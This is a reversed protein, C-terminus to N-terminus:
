AEYWCAKMTYSSAASQSANVLHVLLQEGPALEVQPIRLRTVIPATNAIDFLTAGTATTSDGFELLIKDSVKPIISRVDDEWILSDTAAATAVTVLAGLRMVMSTAAAAVGLNKTVLASSALNTSGGSSWRETGANTKELYIRSATANAGAVTVGFQLTHIYMSRGTSAAYNNKFYALAKSGDTATPAAHSAIGTGATPNSGIWSHGIQVRGLSDMPKVYLNNFNDLHPQDAQGGGQSKTPAQTVPAILQNQAM